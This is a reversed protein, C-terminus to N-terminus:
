KNTTGTARASEQGLECRCVVPDVHCSLVLDSTWGGVKGRDLLLVAFGDLVPHLDELLGPWELVHFQDAVQLLPMLQAVSVGIGQDSPVHGLFLLEREDSRTRRWYRPGVKRELPVEVLM